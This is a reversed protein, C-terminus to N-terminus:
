RTPGERDDSILDLLFVFEYKGSQFNMESKFVTLNEVGEIQQVGESFQAIPASTESEGRLLVEQQQVERMGQRKFDIEEPGVVAELLGVEAPVKLAIRDLFYSVKTPKLTQSGLRKGVLERAEIKEDLQQIANLVPLNQSYEFELEAKKREGQIRLSFLCFFWAALAIASVTAAQRLKSVSQYDVWQERFPVATIQQAAQLWVHLLSAHVYSYGPEFSAQNSGAVSAELDSITIYTSRQLEQLTTFKGDKLPYEQAGSHVLVNSTFFNPIIEPLLYYCVARSFVATVIKARHRGFRDACIRLADKRILAVFSGGDTGPFRMWEFEDADEVSVGLVSSVPNQASEASLMREMVFDGAMALIIPLKPFKDLAALTSDIGQYSSAQLLKIRHQDKRMRLLRYEGEVNMPCEVGILTEMGKWWASDLWKM